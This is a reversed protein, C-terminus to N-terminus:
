ALRRLIAAVVGKMLAQGSETNALILACVLAGFCSGALVLCYLMGLVEMM